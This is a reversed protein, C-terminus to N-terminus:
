QAGVRAPGTRGAGARRPGCPPTRPPYGAVLAQAILHMWLAEGGFVPGAGRKRYAVRPGAFWGKSHMRKPLGTSESPRRLEQSRFRQAPTALSRRM